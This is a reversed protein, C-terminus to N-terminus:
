DLGHPNAGGVKIGGHRLSEVSLWAYSGLPLEPEFLDTTVKVAFSTM